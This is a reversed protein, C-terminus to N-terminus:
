KRRKLTGSAKKKLYEKYSLNPDIDYRLKKLNEEIFQPTLQQPPVSRYLMVAMGADISETDGPALKQLYSQLLETRQRNVEDATCDIERYIDSYRAWPMIRLFERIKTIKDQKAERSCNSCFTDSEPIYVGCGKCEHWGMSKVLKDRKKRKLLANKVANRLPESKISFCDTQVESVESDHLEVTELSKKFSEDENKREPEHIDKQWMNSFRIDEIIRVGMYHNVKSIIDMKMYMLQNSWSPNESYLFLIKNEIRLAKVHEAIGKGVIEPWYYVAMHASFDKGISSKSLVGPM